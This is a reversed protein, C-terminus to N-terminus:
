LLSVVAEQVDALSIDDLLSVDHTCATANNQDTDLSPWARCFVDEGCKTCTTIASLISRHNQTYMPAAHTHSALPFLGVTPVNLTRAMHLPGSDNGIVISARKIVAATSPLSTVGALSKISYKASMQVRDVISVENRGGVAVVDYGQASLWDCLEAYREVPWYRRSDGGGPHVVVFRDSGRLAAAAKSEDEKTISLRPPHLDIKKISWPELLETLALTKHQTSDYFKKYHLPSHENSSFGISWAPKIAKVLKDGYTGDDHIQFLVDFKEEALWELKSYDKDAWSELEIADAVVEITRDVQPVCHEIFQGHWDAGLYVVEAQPALERIARILPLSFMLEGVTLMRLLGIKKVSTLSPIQSTKASAKTM